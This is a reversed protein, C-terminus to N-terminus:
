TLSKRIKFLKDRLKESILSKYLQRVFSVFALKRLDVYSLNKIKQPVESTAHIDRWGMGIYGLIRFLDGSDFWGGIVDDGFPGASHEPFTFEILDGGIHIKSKKYNKEVESGEVINFYSYKESSILLSVVEVAHSEVSLYNPFYSNEFISKIIYKDYNELDVKLFYKISKSTYKDLL